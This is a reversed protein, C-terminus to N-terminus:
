ANRNDLPRRLHATPAHPLTNRMHTRGTQTITDVTGGLHTLSTLLTVQNEAFTLTPDNNYMWFTNALTEYTMQVEFVRMEGTENDKLHHSLVPGTLEYRTFRGSIVTVSRSPSIINIWCGETLDNPMTLRGFMNRLLPALAIVGFSSIAVIGVSAFSTVLDYAELIFVTFVAFVVWTAVSRIVKASTRWPRVHMALREFGKGLIAGALYAGAFLIVGAWISSGTGSFADGFKVFITSFSSM